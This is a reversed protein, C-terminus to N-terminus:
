LKIIPAMPHFHIQLPDAFHEHPGIHVVIYSFAFQYAYQLGHFYPFITSHTRIQHIQAYINAGNITSKYQLKYAHSKSLFFIITNSGSCM